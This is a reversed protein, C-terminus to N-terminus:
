LNAAMRDRLAIADDGAKFRIARRLLRAIEQNDGGSIELVSALAFALRGNTPMRELAAVLVAEIGPSDLLQDVAGLFVRAEMGSELGRPRELGLSLLEVARVSDSQALVSAMRFLGSAEAGDLDIAAQFSEVAEERKGSRALFAAEIVKAAASEPNAEVTPGVLSEVTTLQADNRAWDIAALLIPLHNHTPLGLSLFPQIVEWSESEDERSGVGEAAIAIASGFQDPHTQSFKNAFQLAAKAGRSRAIIELALMQSELSPKTRTTTLMELATLYRKESFLIRAAQTRADTTADSIRISLLFGEFARDVQGLALAAHAGYYPAFPNEPWLRTAEDYQRIANLYEKRNQAVAGRVLARHAAVTMNTTLALAEDTQGLQIRLDALAFLLDPQAGAFSETVALGQELTEAAEEIQGAAKYHESLALLAASRTIPAEAIEAGEVLLAEAEDSRDLQRLISAMILRYGAGKGTEAEFAVRAIELATELEQRKQYFEIARGVVNPHTPYKETCVSWREQALDDEGKDDAFIAMTACHWGRMQDGEEPDAEIRAGLELLVREADDPQNLGLYALIRPKFASLQDPDIELIEDVAELAGRLLRPSRAMVNARMIRVEMNAPNLEIIKAYTDAANEANGGKREIDAILMSARVFWKPDGQAKRLPWEALGPQGTEALVRGYLFLLEMDEPSAKILERLPEIADYHQGAAIQDRVEQIPDGSGCGVIMSMFLAAVILIFIAHLDRFVTSIQTITRKM